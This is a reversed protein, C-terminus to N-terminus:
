PEEYIGVAKMGDAGLEFLEVSVPFETARYAEFVMPTYELYRSALKPFVYARYRSPVVLLVRDGLTDAFLKL